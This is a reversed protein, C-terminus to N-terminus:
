EQFFQVIRSILMRMQALMAWLFGIGGIIMGALVMAEQKASPAIQSNAIYILVGGLFFLMAGLRFQKFSLSLPATYHNKLLVVWRNNYWRNDNM